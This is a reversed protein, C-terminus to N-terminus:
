GGFIVADPIDFRQDGLTVISSDGKRAASFVPAAAGAVPDVSVATGNRFQLVRTTGDPLTLEVSGSGGGQRIVGFACQTEAAGAAPTCAVEGTAHFPTGPVLADADGPTAAEALFAAAAWGELRQDLTAVRCWDRGEASRCGLNRLVQGRALRALEPAGTSPQARLRLTGTGTTAVAWFAPGGAPDNGAKGPVLAGSNGTVAV